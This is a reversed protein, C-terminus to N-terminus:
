AATHSRRALWAAFAEGDMPAAVAFGQVRVAGARSLWDFLDEREVGKAALELDLDRAIDAVAKLMSRHSTNEDMDGVLAPDIKLEKVPLAGIELHSVPSVSQGFGDVALRIGAKTLQEMTEHSTKDHVDLVREDLEFWLQKPDLGHRALARVVQDSLDVELLNEVSLNLALQPPAASGLGAWYSFTTDFLWSTLGKILGHEEAYSIFGDPSNLGPPSEPFRCFAEAKVVQRTRIDVIPQYNVLM